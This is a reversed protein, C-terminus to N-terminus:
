SLTMVLFPYSKVCRLLLNNSIMWTMTPLQYSECKSEISSRLCGRLEKESLVLSRRIIRQRRGKSITVERVRVKVVVVVVVVVVEVV